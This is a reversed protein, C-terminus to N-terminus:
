AAAILNEDRHEEADDIGRRAFQAVCAGAVSLGIQVGLIRSSRAM